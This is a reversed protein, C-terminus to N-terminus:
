EDVEEYDVYEGLKYSTQDLDLKLTTPHNELQEYLEYAKQIGKNQLYFDLDLRCNLFPFAIEGSFALPFALLVPVKTFKKGEFSTNGYVKLITDSIVSDLPEEDIAVTQPVEKANISAPTGM